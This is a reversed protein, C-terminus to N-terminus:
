APIFLDLKALLHTKGGAWKVFPYCVPLESHLISNGQSQMVEDQM